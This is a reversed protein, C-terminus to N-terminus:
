EKVKEVAEMLQEDVEIPMATLNDALVREIAAELIKIRDRQEELQHIMAHNTDTIRRADNIIIAQDKWTDAARNCELCIGAFVVCDGYEPHILNALRLRDAELFEIKEEYEARDEDFQERANDAAM